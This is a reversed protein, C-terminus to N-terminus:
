PDLTRDGDGLGEVRDDLPSKVFHLQYGAGPTIGPTKKMM